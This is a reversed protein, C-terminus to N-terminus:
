VTEAPIEFMLGDKFCDAIYAFVSQLDDSTLRPYNELLQEQTWGSALREVIFEVSLRTGLVTPKGLLIEKDSVIRNQWNM